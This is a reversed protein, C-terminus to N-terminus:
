SIIEVNPIIICSDTGLYEVIYAANDQIIYKYDGFKLVEVNEIDTDITTTSESNSTSVSTPFVNGMYDCFIFYFACFLIAVM